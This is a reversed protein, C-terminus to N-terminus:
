LQVQDCVGIWTPDILSQLSYIVNEPHVDGEDGPMAAAYSGLHNKFYVDDNIIPRGPRVPFRQFCWPRKGRCIKALIANKPIIINEKSFPGAVLDSSNKSFHWLPPLPDNEIWFGSLIRIWIRDGRIVSVLLLICTKVLPHRWKFLSHWNQLASRQNPSRKSSPKDQWQADWVQLMILNENYRHNLKWLHQRWVWALAITNYLGHPCNPRCINKLLSGDLLLNLVIVIALFIFKGKLYFKKKINIYKDLISSPLSNWM